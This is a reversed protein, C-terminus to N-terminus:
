KEQKPERPAAYIRVEVFAPVRGAEEFARALDNYCGRVAELANGNVVGSTRTLAYTTDVQTM